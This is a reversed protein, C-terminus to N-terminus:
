FPRTWRMSLRLAYRAQACSWSAAAITANRIQSRQPETPSIGAAGTACLRFTAARAVPKAGFSETTSIVPVQAWQWFAAYYFFLTRRWAPWPFFHGFVIQFGGGPPREARAGDHQHQHEAQGPPEVLDRDLERQRVNRRHRLRHEARDARQRHQEDDAPQAPRIERQTVARETGAQEGTDQESDFEYQDILAETEGRSRPGRHKEVGRWEEHREAGM